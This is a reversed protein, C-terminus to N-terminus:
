SSAELAARTRATVESWNGSALLDPAVMWTGGVAFV